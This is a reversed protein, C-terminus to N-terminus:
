LFDRQFIAKAEILTCDKSIFPLALRCYFLHLITILESFQLEDVYINVKLPKVIGGWAGNVDTM